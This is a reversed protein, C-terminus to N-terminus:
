NIPCYTVVVNRIENFNSLNVTQPTDPYHIESIRGEYSQEMSVVVKKRRKINRHLQVIKGKQMNTEPQLFLVMKERDQHNVQARTFLVGDIVVCPLPKLRMERM